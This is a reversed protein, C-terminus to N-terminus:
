CFNRLAAFPSRWLGGPPNQWARAKARPGHRGDLVVSAKGLPKM